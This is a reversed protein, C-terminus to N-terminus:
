HYHCMNQVIGCGTHTKREDHREFPNSINGCNKCFRKTVCTSYYVKCDSDYPCTGPTSDTLEEGGCVSWMTMQGCESCLTYEIRAYVSVGLILITASLILGTIIYKVFSKKMLKIRRIKQPMFSLIVNSMRPSGYQRAHSSKKPVNKQRESEASM